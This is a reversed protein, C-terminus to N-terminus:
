MLEEKIIEIANYIGTAYGKATDFHLPNERACRDREEDALNGETELREIVRELPKRTNWAKIVAERHISSPHKCGCEKCYIWYYNIYNQEDACCLKAEGGCFACKLLVVGDNSREATM